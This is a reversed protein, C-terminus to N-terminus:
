SQQGTYPVIHQAGDGYEDEISEALFVRPVKSRSGTTAIGDYTKVCYVKPRKALESELEAIRAQAENREKLLYAARAAITSFADKSEEVKQELHRAYRALKAAAHNGVVEGNRFYWDVDQKADAWPDAKAAEEAELKALRDYMEGIGLAQRDQKYFRLMIEKAQEIDKRLQEIESM